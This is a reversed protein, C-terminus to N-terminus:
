NVSINVLEQLGQKFGNMVFRRFMSLRASKAHLRNNCNTMLIMPTKRMDQAEGLDERLWRSEVQPIYYYIDPMYRSLIIYFPPLNTHM